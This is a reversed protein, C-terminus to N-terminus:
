LAWELVDNGRLRSDLTMKLMGKSTARAACPAKKTVPNGGARSLWRSLAHKMASLRIALQKVWHRIFQTRM